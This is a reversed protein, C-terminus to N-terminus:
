LLWEFIPQHCCHKTPSKGPRGTTLFTGALSPSMPEIGPGPLDWMGHLLWTLAGCSSLWHEAVLSYEKSVVSFFAQTCCILGLVAM